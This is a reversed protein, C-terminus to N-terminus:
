ETASLITLDDSTLVPEGGLGGEEGQFVTARVIMGNKIDIARLATGDAM